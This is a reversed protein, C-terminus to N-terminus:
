CINTLWVNAWFISLMQQDCRKVFYFTLCFADLFFCHWHWYQVNRHITSLLYIYIFIIVSFMCTGWGRFFYVFCWHSWHSDFWRVKFCHMAGQFEWVEARCRQAFKTWTTPTTDWFFRPCLADFQWFVVLVVISVHLGIYFFFWLFSM